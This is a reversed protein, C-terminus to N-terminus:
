YDGVEPSTLNVTFFKLVKKATRQDPAFLAPLAGKNEKGVAIIEGTM